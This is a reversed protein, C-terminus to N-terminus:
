LFQGGQSFGIANYGAKLKTDKSLQACVLDIQQNVNM